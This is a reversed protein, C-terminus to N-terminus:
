PQDRWAVLRVAMRHVHSGQWYLRGCAPCVRLPDGLARAKEPARGAEDPEAPRLPHNDVLCRTFPAHMWDIGLAARLHRADEDMAGGTLLVARVRKPATAALHRDRTLLVRDEEACLLLIARDSAGEEAIATDYGAARLWRGLRGLMEDCVLRM